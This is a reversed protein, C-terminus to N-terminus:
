AHISASAAAMYSFVANFVMCDVVGEVHSHSHNKINTFLTFMNWVDNLLM